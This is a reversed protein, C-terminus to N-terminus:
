APGEGQAAAFAERHLDLSQQRPLRVEVVHLGGCLAERVAARFEPVTAPLHHRGGMMQVVPAFDLGHPTGFYTEFLDKPLTSQPLFSFIGGGDNNLLVVLLDIAHLRAALLGGIDHLFALDGTVLVNHPGHAAAMGLATSTVGDIGSAGRSGYFRVRRGLCPMFSDADRIAMSNGLFLAADGPLLASLERLVSGEFPWRGELFRDLRQRASTASTRWLDAYSPAPREPLLPVLATLIATIDGTLALGGLHYPDRLDGPEDVLIRAAETGQLWQLLPGSAALPGIRFILDPQASDRFAGDRLLLDYADIVAGGPSEQRLGSLPDALVPADLRAAVALLADAAPTVDLPGCVIAVRRHAKLTQALAEIAERAPASSQLHTLFPAGKLRLEASELQGATPLLPEHLPVNIQVPGQPLGSSRAVAQAAIVRLARQANDSDNEAPLDYRWRLHGGYVSRQDITQAAGFGFVEAPRDATLVLLPVHGVHAEAVAPAYNAAATGSTCILAAPRRNVKALGLAFYAASREDIHVTVRFPLRSAALVLPTSRSGPSICLDRVGLRYLEEFFALLGKYALSM